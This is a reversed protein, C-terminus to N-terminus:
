SEFNPNKVGEKVWHYPITGGSRGEEYRQTGSLAHFDDSYFSYRSLRGRLFHRLFFFLSINAALKGTTVTFMGSGPQLKSEGNDAVATVVGTPQLNTAPRATNVQFHIQFAAPSPLCM